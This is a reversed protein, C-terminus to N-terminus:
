SISDEVGAPRTSSHKILFPAFGEGKKAEKKGEAKTFAQALDGKSKTKKKLKNTDESKRKSAPLKLNQDRKEMMLARSHPRVHEEPTKSSKPPLDISRIPPDSARIAGEGFRKV